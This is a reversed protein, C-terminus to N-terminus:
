YRQSNRLTADRHKSLLSYNHYHENFNPLCDIVRYALKFFVLWLCLSCKRSSPLNRAAVEGIADNDFQFSVLRYGDLIRKRLFYPSGYCSIAGFAMIAIRNGIQTAEELNQTSIVISRGALERRMISWFLIKYQPAMKVTPQYCIIVRSDVCLCCVLSLIRQEDYSLNKICTHFNFKCTKEWIALERVIDGYALGRVNCLFQIYETATLLQYFCNESPCMSLKSKAAPTNQDHGYVRIRGSTPKVLGAFINSALTQGGGKHGILVCIEGEYAKFTLNTLLMSKGWRKCIRNCNLAEKKDSSCYEIYARPIAPGAEDKEETTKRWDFIFWWKKPELDINPSVQMVYFTIILYLVTDVMFMILHAPITFGINIHDWSLSENRSMIYNVFYTTNTLINFYFLYMIFSFIIHVKNAQIYILLYVSRFILIILIHFAISKKPNKMIAVILFIFTM